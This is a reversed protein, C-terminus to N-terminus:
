IFISYFPCGDGEWRLSRKLKGTRANLLQIQRGDEWTEIALTGGDPSYALPGGRRGVDLVKNFQGNLTNYLFIKDETVTAVTKGNPSLASTQFNFHGEITLRLSLPRVNWLRTTGDWSSSVATSRDSSFILSFIGNKHAPVRSLVEGTNANLLVITGGQGIVILEAGLFYAVSDNPEEITRIQKGTKANWLRIVDDRSGSALTSSDPSFTLSHVNRPHGTLTRLLKGTNANWLHIMAEEHRDVASALKKGDPSFALVRVHETHGSLSSKREGTQVNLLDVGKWRGAALTRGDPSYALSNAEQGMFTIKHEQTSPDWLRVENSSGSALTKGNPSYAVSRVRRTHGTLLAIEAGTHANYLWVGIGTAIALQTGDPSLAVDNARGKGIRAKVGDPLHWQPPDQAFSNSM